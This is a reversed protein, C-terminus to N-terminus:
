FRRLYVPAAALAGVVLLLPVGIMVVFLDYATRQSTSPAHILAASMIVIPLFFWLGPKARRLLGSRFIAVGLIFAYGVRPIGGWFTANNWGINASGFLLLAAVLAVGSIAIIPLLARPKLRLLFLAFILNILLEFFLSWAPPNLPFVEEGGVPSPLLVANLITSIGFSVPGLAHAGDLVIKAVLKVFMLAFGLAFMPYLRVFRQLMFDKVPLGVAFRRDYAMAIVVGSLAFFFDVALYGSPVLELRINQLHYAAVLIAALGRMADLTYLRENPM